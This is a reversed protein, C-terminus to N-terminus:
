NCRCAIAIILSFRTVTQPLLKVKMQSLRSSSLTRSLLYDEATSRGCNLICNGCNAVRHYIRRNWEKWHSLTIELSLKHSYDRTTASPSARGTFYLYPSTTEWTGEAFPILLRRVISNLNGKIRRSMRRMQAVCSSSSSKCNDDTYLTTRGRELRKNKTSSM